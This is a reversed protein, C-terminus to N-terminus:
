KNGVQSDASPMHRLLETIHSIVNKEIEEIEDETYEGDYRDIVESTIDAVTNNTSFLSNYIHEKINRIADDEIKYSTFENYYNM